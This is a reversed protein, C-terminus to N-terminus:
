THDPALKPGINTFFLNFQNAIDTKDTVTTGDIKFSNPFQETMTTENIIEKIISWTKKINNKHKEFRLDVDCNLSSLCVKM